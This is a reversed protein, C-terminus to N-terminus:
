YGHQQDLYNQLIVAAAAADLPVNKRKALTLYEKAKATSYSEDFYDIPTSLVEALADAYRIVWQTQPGIRDHASLSYPMGIVLQTVGLETILTQIQEFDEAQSRHQIIGHPMAIIGSESIAVGIRKEGLDLAMFCM